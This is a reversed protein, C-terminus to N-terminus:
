PNDPSTGSRYIELLAIHTFTGVPGLYAVKMPRAAQLAISFLETAIKEILDPTLPPKAYQQLNSILKSKVLFIGQEGERIIGQLEKIYTDTLQSLSDIIDQEFNSSGM